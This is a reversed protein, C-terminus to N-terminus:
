AARRQKARSARAATKVRAAVRLRPRRRRAEYERTMRAYFRRADKVSVGKWLGSTALIGFLITTMHRVRAESSRRPITGSFYLKDEAIHFLEHFLTLHKQLRPATANILVESEGGDLVWQGYLERPLRRVTVPVTWDPGIQVRRPLGATRSM